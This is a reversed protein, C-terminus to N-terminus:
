LEVAGAKVDIFWQDQLRQYFHWRGRATGIPQLHGGTIKTCGTVTMRLLMTKKWATSVSVQREESLETKGLQLDSPSRRQGASGCGPVGARAGHAAGGRQGWWGYRVRGTQGFGMLDFCESGPSVPSVRPASPLSSGEVGGGGFLDLTPIPSQSASLAYKFCFCPLSIAFYPRINSLLTWTAPHGLSSPVSWYFDMKIEVKRLAHRFGTFAGDAGGWDPFQSVSIWVKDGGRDQLWLFNLPNISLKRFSVLKISAVHKIQPTFLNVWYFILPINQRRVFSFTESLCICCWKYFFLVCSIM